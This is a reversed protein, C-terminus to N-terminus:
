QHYNEPTDANLHAQLAKIIRCDLRIYEEKLIEDQWKEGRGQSKRTSECCRWWKHAVSLLEPSQILAQREELRERTIPNPSDYPVVPANALSSDQLVTSPDPYLQNPCNWHRLGATPVRNQM